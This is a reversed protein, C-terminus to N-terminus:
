CKIALCRRLLDVPWAQSPLCARPTAYGAALTLRSCVLTGGGAARSVAQGLQSLPWPAGAKDQPESSPGAPIPQDDALIARTRARLQPGGVYVAHTDGSEDGVHLSSPQVVELRPVRRRARASSRMRRVSTVPSALRGSCLGAELWIHHAITARAPSRSGQICGGRGSRARHGGIPARQVLPQQVHSGVCRADRQDQLREVGERLQGGGRERAGPSGSTEAESSGLVGDALPVPPWGLSRPRVTVGSMGGDPGRPLFM